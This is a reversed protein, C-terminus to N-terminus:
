ELIHWLISVLETFYLVKGTYNIIKENIDELNQSIRIQAPRLSFVQWGAFVQMDRFVHIYNNINVMTLISFVNTSLVLCNNM